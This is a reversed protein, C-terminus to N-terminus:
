SVKGNQQKRAIKNAKHIMRLMDLAYLLPVKRFPATHQVFITDYEGRGGQKVMDKIIRKTEPSKLIQEQWDDPAGEPRDYYRVSTSDKLDAPGDEDPGYVKPAYWHRSLLERLRDYPMMTMMSKDPSSHRGVRFRGPIYRPKFAKKYIPNNSLLHVLEHAWGWSFMSQAAADLPELDDDEEGESPYGGLPGWHVENTPPYATGPDGWEPIDLTRIKINRIQDTMDETFNYCYRAFKEFGMRICKSMQAITEPNKLDRLEDAKEIFFRKELDKVANYNDINGKKGSAPDAFIHDAICRGWRNGIKGAKDSVSKFPNWANNVPKFGQNMLSEFQSINALKLM